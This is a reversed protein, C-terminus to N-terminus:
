KNHLGPSDKLIKIGIVKFDCVLWRCYVKYRKIKHWEFKLSVSGKIEM